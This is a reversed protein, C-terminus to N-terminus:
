KVEFKIKLLLHSVAGSAIKERLLHLILIPETFLVAEEQVMIVELVVMIVVVAIIMTILADTRDWISCTRCSLMNVTFLGSLLVEVIKGDGM